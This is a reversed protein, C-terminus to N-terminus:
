QSAIICGHIGIEFRSACFNEAFRYQRLFFKIAHLSASSKELDKEVVAVVLGNSWISVKFWRFIYCNSHVFFLSLFHKHHSNYLVQPAFMM